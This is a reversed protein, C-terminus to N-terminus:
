KWKAVEAKCITSTSAANMAAGWTVVTNGAAINPTYIVTAGAGCASTALLQNKLAVTTVGTTAVSYSTVEDTLTPMGRLGLGGSSIPDTWNDAASLTFTGGNFQANEAIALKLTSVAANVKTLRARTMYDSYQPIAIAALIGIIAVVIMLEILTFGKQIKKM